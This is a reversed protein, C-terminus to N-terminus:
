RLPPPLMRACLAARRMEPAEAPDQTIRVAMSRIQDAYDRPLPNGYAPHFDVDEGAGECRTHGRADGALDTYGIDRGPRVSWLLTRLAFIRAPPAASRDAALELAAQFIAADQLYRTPSSILDLLPISGNTRNVRLAAALALGGDPGCESVRTLAWDEGPLPRGNAVIEAAGRCASRQDLDAPDTQALAPSAAALLLLPLLRRM